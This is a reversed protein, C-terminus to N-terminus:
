RALARARQRTKVGAPRPARTGAHWRRPRKARQRAQTSARGRGLTGAGHVALTSAHRHAPASVGWRALARDPCRTAHPQAQPGARERGLTGAGRGAPTDAHRRAQVSTGWRPPLPRCVSRSRAPTMLGQREAALRTARGRGAAPIQGPRARALLGPLRPPWSPGCVSRRGAPV